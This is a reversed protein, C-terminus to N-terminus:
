VSRSRRTDTTADRTAHKRMRYYYRRLCNRRVVIFRNRVASYGGMQNLLNKAHLWAAKEREYYQPTLEFAKWDLLMAAVEEVEPPDHIRDLAHGIEHSLTAIKDTLVLDRGIRIHRNGIGMQGKNNSAISYTHYGNTGSILHYEYGLQRATAILARYLGRLRGARKTKLIKM